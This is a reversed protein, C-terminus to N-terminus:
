PQKKNIYEQMLEVNIPLYIKPPGWFKYIVLQMEPSLDITKNTYFVASMETDLLQNGKILARMKKSAASPGSLEPFYMTALESFHKFGNIIYNEKVVEKYNM